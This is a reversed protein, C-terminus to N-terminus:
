MPHIYQTTVAMPGGALWQQKTVEFPSSINEGVPSRIWIIGMIRRHHCGFLLNMMEQIM